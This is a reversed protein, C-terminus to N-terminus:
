ARGPRWAGANGLQGHELLWTVEAEVEARGRALGRRWGILGCLAGVFGWAVAGVLDTM